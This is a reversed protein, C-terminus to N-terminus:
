ISVGGRQAFKGIDHLLAVLQVEKLAEVERVIRQNVM